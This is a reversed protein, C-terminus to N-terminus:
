PLNRLQGYQETTLRRHGFPGAVHKITDPLDGVRRVSRRRCNHRDQIKRLLQKRTSWLAIDQRDGFDKGRRWLKGPHVAVGLEAEAGVGIFLNAPKRSRRRARRGIGRAIGRRARNTGPDRAADQRQDRCARRSSGRIQRLCPNSRRARRRQWTPRHHSRPVPALRRAPSASGLPLHRWSRARRRATARWGPRRTGATM